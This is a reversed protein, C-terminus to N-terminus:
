LRVLAHAHHHCDAAYIFLSWPFTKRAAYPKGFIGPTPQHYLPAAPNMQSSQLIGLEHM